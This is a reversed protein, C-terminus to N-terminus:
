NSGRAVLVILCVVDVNNEFYYYYTGSLNWDKFFQMTYPIHAEYCRFVLPELGLQSSDTAPAMGVADYQQPDPHFSRPVELGRELMLKVKWRMKPDYYEVRLFPAPPGPCYTYFGRGVVVTVKRIFRTAPVALKEKGRIENNSNDVTNAMSAQLTAELNTKVTSTIKEVARESDWDIHGSNTSNLSPVTQDSGSSKSYTSNTATSFLHSSHHLSGDPGAIAPRAM